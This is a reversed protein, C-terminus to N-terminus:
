KPCKKVLIVMRSLKMKVSKLGSRPTVADLLNNSGFINMKGRTDMFELMEPFTQDFYYKKPDTPDNFLILWCILCMGILMISIQVVDTMIVTKYGGIYTYFLVLLNTLVIITELSWSQFVAHMTISPIFLTIAQGIFSTPLLIAICIKYIKDGYAYKVFAFISPIKFKIMKPLIFYSVILYCSTIVMLMINVCGIGSGMIQTPIVVLMIASIFSASLSIGTSIPGIEGDALLYSSSSETSKQLVQKLKSALGVFLTFGISICFVIVDGYM